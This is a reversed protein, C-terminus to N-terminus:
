LDGYPDGTEIFNELLPYHRKYVHLSAAHWVMDGKELDFGGLSNLDQLLQDLIYQQWAYDNRYGFVVDNSRMQVVSHLRNERILYQVTNTCVFDSMGDRNWDKHMTPRTYIMTAQRTNPDQLLKSLANVYQFHNAESLVLYGYNSNIEMNSSAHAQWIQPIKGPIDMVSLSQSKYWELERAVYDDNVKGFITEEDAIFTAGILEVTDENVFGISNHYEDGDYLRALDERIQAITKM